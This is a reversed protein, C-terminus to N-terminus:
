AASLCVASMVSRSTLLAAIDAGRGSGSLGWPQASLCLVKTRLRATRTCAEDNYPKAPGPEMNRVLLIQYGPVDLLGAGGGRRVPPRGHPTGAATGSVRRIVWWPRRQASSPQLWPWWHNLSIATLRRPGLLSVRIIARLRTRLLITYDGGPQDGPYSAFPWSQSARNFLFSVAANPPTSADPNRITDVETACASALEVNRCAIELAPKQAPWDIRGDSLVRSSSALATHEQFDDPCVGSLMALTTCPLSKWLRVIACAVCNTVKAM